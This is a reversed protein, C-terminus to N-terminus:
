LNASSARVGRSFGCAMANLSGSGIGRWYTLSAGRRGAAPHHLPQLEALKIKARSIAYTERGKPINEGGTQAQADGAESTLAPHGNVVKRIWNGMIQVWFESLARDTRNM